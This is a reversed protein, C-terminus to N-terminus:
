MSCRFALQARRVGESRARPSNWSISIRRRAGHESHCKCRELRDGPAGERAIACHKPRRRGPARGSQAEVSKM